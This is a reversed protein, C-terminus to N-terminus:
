RFHDYDLGQEPLPHLRQSRCGHLQLRLSRRVRLGMSRRCPSIDCHVLSPTLSDEHLTTSFTSFYELLGEICALLCQLICVVFSFDEQDRLYRETARLAQVVAVVLSGFCISGFSYTTARAFSDGIAPSCCGTAETPVFWWTGVVGATTVHLTNQLVQQVWYFSLFLVFVVVGTGNAMTEQVGLMWVIAWVLGVATVAYAVVLLGLNARVASLATVLNAAAFPIRPWVMRAYCLGLLFSILGVVGLLIEGTLFGVVALLGSFLVSVILAVQVLSETHQMMWSLAVISLGVASAGTLVVFGISSDVSIGAAGGNWGALIWVLMAIWHAVFLIAWLFDNYVAPKNDRREQLNSSNDNDLVAYADAHQYAPQAVPLGQVVPIQNM